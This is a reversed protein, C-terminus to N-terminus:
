SFVRAGSRPLTREGTSGRVHLRSLLDLRDPSKKDARSLERGCARNRGRRWLPAIGALQLSKIHRLSELRRNKAQFIPPSSLGGWM